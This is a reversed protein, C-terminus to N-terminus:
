HRHGRQTARTEHARKQQKSALITGHATIRSVPRGSLDHVAYGCAMLLALLSESATGVIPWAYPHVEVCILRPARTDGKLLTTAGRLVAEEFGEVDIKMVDVPRDSFISDLRVCNVTQSGPGAGVHSESGRGAVFPVRGDHDAVAVPYVAVRAGMRNLQCQAELRAFNAPDPEFAHVRGLEGVRRGLAISYLGCHAGADVITDGPRVEGVLHRWVEPEYSSSISRLEPLVRISDTGNVLRELGQPAMAGLLSTYPGRLFDWLSHFDRLWRSHRLASCSSEIVHVTAHVLSGSGFPETAPNV